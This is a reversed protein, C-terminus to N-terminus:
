FYETFITAGLQRLSPNGVLAPCLSGEGGLVEARFSIRQGSSVLPLVIEGLTRDPQGNIGSVSTTKDWSVVVEKEMGQPIICTEMIDRLTESGVLGSAAGPDM